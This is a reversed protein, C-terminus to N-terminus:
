RAGGTESGLGASGVWGLELAEQISCTRLEGQREIRAVGQGGAAASTDPALRVRHGAVEVIRTGDAERESREAHLARLEDETADVLHAAYSGPTMGEPITWWPIRPVHAEMRRGDEWLSITLTGSVSLFTPATAPLDAYRSELEDQLLADLEPNPSRMSPPLRRHRAAM